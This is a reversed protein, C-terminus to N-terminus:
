IEHNAEATNYDIKSPDDIRDSPKTSFPDYAM